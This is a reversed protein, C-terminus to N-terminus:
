HEDDPMPKEYGAFDLHDAPGFLWRYISIPELQGGPQGDNPFYMEGGFLVGVPADVLDGDKPGGKLECKM